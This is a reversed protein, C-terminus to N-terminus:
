NAFTSQGNADSGKRGYGVCDSCELNGGCGSPDGRLTREINELSNGIGSLQHFCNVIGYYKSSIDDLFDSAKQYIHSCVWLFVIGFSFASVLSPFLPDSLFFQFFAQVATSITM